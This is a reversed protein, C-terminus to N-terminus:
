LINYMGHPTYPFFINPHFQYEFWVVLPLPDFKVTYIGSFYNLM